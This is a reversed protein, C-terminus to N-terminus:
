GDKLVVSQFFLLEPIIRECVVMIMGDPVLMKSVRALVKDLSLFM